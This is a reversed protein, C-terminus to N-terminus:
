RRLCGYALAFALVLWGSTRANEALHYSPLFAIIIIVQSVACPCRLSVTCEVVCRVCVPFLRLYVSLSMSLRLRDSVPVSLSRRLRAFTVSMEIKWHLGQGGVGVTLIAM